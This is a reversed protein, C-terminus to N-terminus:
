HSAAFEFFVIDGDIVQPAVTFVRHAMMNFEFFVILNFISRFFKERGIHHVDHVDRHMRSRSTHFIEKDIVASCRIEGIGLVLVKLFKELPKNRFTDQDHRLLKEDLVPSRAPRQGSLVDCRQHAIECLHSSKLHNLIPLEIIKHNRGVALQFRIKSIAHM